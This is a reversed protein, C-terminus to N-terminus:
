RDMFARSICILAGVIVMMSQKRKDNCQCYAENCRRLLHCRGKAKRENSKDHTIPYALSLPAQQWTTLNRTIRVEDGCMQMMVVPACADSYRRWKYYGHLRCGHSSKRCGVLDETICVYQRYGFEVGAAGRNGDCSSFTAVYFWTDKMSVLLFPFDSAFTLRLWYAVNFFQHFARNM